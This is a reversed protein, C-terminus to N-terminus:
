ELSDDNTRATGSLAQIDALIRNYLAIDNTHECIDLNGADCEDPKDLGNTEAHQKKTRLEALAREGFMRLTKQSMLINCAAEDRERALEFYRPSRLESLKIESLTQELRHWSGDLYLADAIATALGSDFERYYAGCECGSKTCVVQHPVVSPADFWTKDMKFPITKIPPETKVEPKPIVTCVTDQFVISGDALTCKTIGAHTLQVALSCLCCIAIFRSYQRVQTHLRTSVNPKVTDTDAYSAKCTPQACHHWISHQTISCM